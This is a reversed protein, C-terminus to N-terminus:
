IRRFVTYNESEGVKEYYSYFSDAAMNMFDGDAQFVVYDFDSECMAHYLKNWSDLQGSDGAIVINADYQRIGYLIDYTQPICARIKKDNSDAKILNSIEYADQDIKYINTVDHYMTKDYIKGCMAVSIIIVVAFLIKRKMASDQPVQKTYWQTGAYALITMYPILYSIRMYAHMDEGFFLLGIPAALPNWIILFLVLITYLVMRKGRITGTKDTLVLVISLVFLVFYSSEKYFNTNFFQITEM